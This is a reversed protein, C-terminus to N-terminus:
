LQHYLVSKGQQFVQIDFTYVGFHFKYDQLDLFIEKTKAVHEYSIFGTMIGQM